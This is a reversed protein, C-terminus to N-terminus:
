SDIAENHDPINVGQAMLFSVPNVAKGNQQIEFHLHPNFSYGTNGTLGLQDGAHVKQGEQVTLTSAHGYLITTGNGADVEVTYGYGGCWRALKITGDHAAYFPTGEAAMLDIGTQAGTTPAVTYNKVPLLWLNPIMQDVGTMTSSRDTSRGARDANTQRSAADIGTASSSFNAANLAAPDAKHDPMSSATALAVMGAGVLATTAV